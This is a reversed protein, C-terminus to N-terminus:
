EIWSQPAPTKPPDDPPGIIIAGECGYLTVGFATIGDWPDAKGIPQDPNFDNVSGPPPNECMPIVPVGVPIEIPDAASSGALLALTAVVALATLTTQITM